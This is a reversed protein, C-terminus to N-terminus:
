KESWQLTQLSLNLHLFNIIINITKCTLKWNTTYTECSKLDNRVYDQKIVVQEFMFWNSYLVSPVTMTPCSRLLCNSWLGLMNPILLLLIDTPFIHVFKTWIHNYKTINNASIFMIKWYTFGSYMNKFVYFWTHSSELM